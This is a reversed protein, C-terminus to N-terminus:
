GAGEYKGWDLKPGGALERKVDAVICGIQTASYGWAWLLIRADAEDHVARSAKVLEFISPETM